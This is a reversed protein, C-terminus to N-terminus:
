VLQARHSVTCAIGMLRHHHHHQFHTDFLPMQCRVSGQGAATATNAIIRNQTGGSASIFLGSGDGRHKGEGYGCGM